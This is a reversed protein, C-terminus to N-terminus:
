KGNYAGSPFQVSNQFENMEPFQYGLHYLQTSLKSWLGPKWKRLDKRIYEGDEGDQSILDTALRRKIPVNRLMKGIPYALFITM